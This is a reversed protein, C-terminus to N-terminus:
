FFSINKVRTAGRVFLLPSEIPPGKDVLFLLAHKKCAYCRTSFALPERDTSWVDEIAKLVRKTAYM